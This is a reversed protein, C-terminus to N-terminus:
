ETKKSENYLRYIERYYNGFFEQFVRQGNNMVQAALLGCLGREHDVFWKLGSMGGWMMTNKGIWGDYGELSLLGALSWSKKGDRPLNGGCSLYMFDDDRLMTFLATRASDSLQDATMEAWSAPQLLKPDRHLVAQLLTFLDSATAYLGGGGLCEEIGNAIMDAPAPVAKGDSDLTSLDAMRSALEPKTEPWFTISTLGLPQCINAAFYEELTSGTAREILKGAWETGSGYMWSTGPEFLLPFSSREVITKGSWPIRNNQACWKQLQPMAFEYGFGSSHSLLMRDPDDSMYLEQSMARKSLCVFRLTIARTKPKLIAQDTKEDFGTLIEINAIEPLFTTTVDDDLKLLGREVCQMAAIATLLKTCSAIALV